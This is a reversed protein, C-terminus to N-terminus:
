HLSLHYETKAKSINTRVKKEANGPNGNIGNAPEEGLMLFNNQCNDTPSSSINDAVFIVANGAFDNGFRSSGATGFTIGYGSNM